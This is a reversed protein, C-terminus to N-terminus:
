RPKVGNGTRKKMGELKKMLTEHLRKNGAWAAQMKQMRQAAIVALAVSKISKKKAGQHMRTNPTVGIEELIRLDAKNSFSTLIMVHYCFPLSVM